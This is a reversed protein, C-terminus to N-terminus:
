AARAFWTWAGNTASQYTRGALKCDVIMQRGDLHAYVKTSRVTRGNGMDIELPFFGDAALNAAVELRTAIKNAM